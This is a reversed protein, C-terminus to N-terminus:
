ATPPARSVTFRLAPGAIRVSDAPAPAEGLLTPAELCGTTLQQDVPQHGVHCIQCTTESSGHHDHWITAAFTATLLLLVALAVPLASRIQTHRVRM